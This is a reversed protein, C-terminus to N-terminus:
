WGGAAIPRVGGAIVEIEGSSPRIAEVPANDRLTAGHERAMRVHAANGRAAM